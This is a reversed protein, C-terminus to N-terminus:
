NFFGGWILIGITIGTSVLANWFNTNSRPRGHDRANILLSVSFLVILVIQPAAM